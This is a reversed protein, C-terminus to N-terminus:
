INLRYTFKILFVHHAPIHFLQSLNRGPSFEIDDTFTETRGQSWVLYVTSGPHYEWRIVLNSRFQLFRFDPNDVPYVRNNGENFLLYGSPETQVQGPSYLQFREEYNEARPQTVQKFRDYRGVSIFPQGYFQFSLDPTMSYNVRINVYLTEQNIQALIYRKDNGTPLSNEGPCEVTDVYQLDDRLNTYDPEISLSLAAFPRYTIGGWYRFRYISDHGAWLESFSMRFILKKRLDTYFSFWYNFRGPLILSPGGRLATPELFRGFVEAGFTFGWYQPFGFNFHLNAGSELREGAFNWRNWFHGNIEIQRFIGAPKETLFGIHGWHQIRDASRLYGMDNLELGPSRWVVGTIFQFNGIGAKSISIDGGHGTLSTRNPSYHLYNADPRQFYHVPSEQTERIAEVSGSVHSIVARGVFQWERNAWSHFFDVGGTYASRRLDDLHPLDTLDRNVANFMGGVVTSGGNFDKQVRAAFYNTLPEVTELRQQGQSNIGANEKSTISEIIGLSLGNRTKGTLKFAGLITTNGPINVYEGSITDPTHQPPRGIRRSYFLNDQGFDGGTSSVSFNLINRGEVFFPRKEEFFTEYATLNVESPDAEVQGFDPNVTFDLTLDSGIGIKGDLGGTLISRKGTAFPNGEEEKFREIKGVTYPLLEIGRKAKGLQLGSLQGFWSVYGKSNVPILNWESKEQTRHVFRTVHFGWQQVSHSGFRLQSFPIKMEVTWGDSDVNIQAYWIPDWSEDWNEADGSILVDKKIGAANVSFSFGTRRDFYSDLVVEVWDGELVDRRTLRREIKGPENDFSRVGVYINEQDYVVKFATKYNPEKGEHPIKQIFGSGWDVHSWASEDLKGDIVPTPGVLRYAHYVKGQSRSSGPYCISIVLMIILVVMIFRKM